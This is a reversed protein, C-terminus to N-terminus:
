GRYTWGWVNRWGVVVLRNDSHIPQVTTKGTHVTPHHSLASKKLIMNSYTKFTTCLSGHQCWYVSQVSRHSQPPFLVPSLTSTLVQSPLHSITPSHGTHQSWPTHPVRKPASSLHDLDDQSTIIQNEKSKDQLQVDLWALYNYTQSPTHSLSQSPIHSLSTPSSSLHDRNDQDTTVRSRKSKDPLWRDLWSVPTHAQSLTHISIQSPTHSPKMSLPQSPKLSHM